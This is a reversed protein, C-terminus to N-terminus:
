ERSFVYRFDLSDRIMSNSPMIVLLENHLVLRFYRSSVLSMIADGIWHAEVRSFEECDPIKRYNQFNHEQNHGLQHSAM